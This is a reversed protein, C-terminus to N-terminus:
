RGACRTKRVQNGTAARVRSSVSGTRPYNSDLVTCRSIEQLAYKPQQVAYITGKAGTAVCMYPGAATWATELGDEQGQARTALFAAVALAGLALLSAGLVSLRLSTM